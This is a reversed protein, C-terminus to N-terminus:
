EDTLNINRGEKKLTIQFLRRVLDTNDAPEMANLRTALELIPIEFKLEYEFQTEAIKIYGRYQTGDVVQEIYCETQVKM